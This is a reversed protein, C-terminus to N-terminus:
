GPEPAPAQHDDARGRETFEDTARQCRPEAAQTPRIGTTEADHHVRAGEHFEHDDIDTEVEAHDRRIHKGHQYEHGNEAGDDGRRKQSQIETFDAVFVLQERVYSRAKTM